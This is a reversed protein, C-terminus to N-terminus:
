DNANNWQKLAIVTKCTFHKSIM